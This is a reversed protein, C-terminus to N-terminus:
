NQLFDVAGLLNFIMLAFSENGFANVGIIEIHYIIGNKAQNFHFKVILFILQFRCYLFFCTGAIDFLGIPLYAQLMWVVFIMLCGARFLGYSRRVSM